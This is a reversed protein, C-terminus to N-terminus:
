FSPHMSFSIIRPMTGDDLCLQVSFLLLSISYVLGAMHVMCMALQGHSHNVRGSYVRSADYPPRTSCVVLDHSTLFVNLKGSSISFSVSVRVSVRDRFRIMHVATIAVSQAIVTFLFYECLM